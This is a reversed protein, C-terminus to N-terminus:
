GIGSGDHLHRGSSARHDHDRPCARRYRRRVHLRSGADIEGDVFAALPPQSAIDRVMRFGARMITRWEEDTGLFNQHIRVPQAPDASALQSTGRSTPRMPMVRCSFSDAFAQKFPPLYPAATTTAGMWFLMQVDPVKEEPRTKLFATVGFPLDSAFGKGFFYAQASRSRSATSGCTANFRARNGAAIPSRGGLYSGAPEQGRGKLPVRAAIGHAQLEDPDGIGSLMLLQPSNISGGALIVERDARVM